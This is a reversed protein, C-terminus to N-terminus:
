IQLICMFHRFFSKLHKFPGLCGQIIGYKVSVRITARESYIFTIAIWVGEIALTVENNTELLIFILYMAFLEQDHFTHSTTYFIKPWDAYIAEGPLKM